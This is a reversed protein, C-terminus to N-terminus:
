GYKFATQLLNLPMINELRGEMTLGNVRKVIDRYETRLSKLYFKVCINVTHTSM